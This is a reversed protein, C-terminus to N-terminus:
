YCQTLYYCAYYTGTHICYVWVSRMVSHGRVTNDIELATKFMIVGYYYKTYQVATGATPVSLIMNRKM